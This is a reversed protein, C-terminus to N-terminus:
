VLPLPTHTPGAVFTPAAGLTHEVQVEITGIWMAKGPVHGGM